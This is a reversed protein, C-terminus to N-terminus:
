LVLEKLAYFLTQCEKKWLLLLMSQFCLYWEEKGM